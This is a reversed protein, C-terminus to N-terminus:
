QLARRKKLTGAIKNRDLAQWFGCYNCQVPVLGEPLPNRFPHTVQSPWGPPSSVEGIQCIPCFTALLELPLAGMTIAGRVLACVRLADAVSEFRDSPNNRITKEFVHNLHWTQLNRSLAEVARHNFVPNERAFAFQNTVASWLIKGASYLDARFTIERFAAGPECEPAIYNITGVGEDVLTIKTEGEIQCIGFDIVKISHDPLVLLNAPSLDRHVVGATQTAGIVSALQEFLELSESADDYFPNHNTNLIKKLTIAKPVFEMVYYHFEDEPKSSEIIQIVGPHDIAKIANVERSFREYAKPSANGKLPKLAYTGTLVGTSDEVEYVTAQGGAGLERIKKWRFEKPFAM